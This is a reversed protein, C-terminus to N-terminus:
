FYAQLQQRLQPVHVAAATWVDPMNLGPYNHIAYNRFGIIDNWPVDPHQERFDQSLHNAEEGIEILQMTIADRYVRQSEFTGKGKAVYEEVARIADGILLLRVRDRDVPTHPRQSEIVARERFDPAALPIAESLIREAMYPHPQSVVDVKVQLLGQLDEKLADQNKWEVDALLDVDSGDHDEGRAVSGFLRLNHAGHEAAIRLIEPRKEVILDLLSV